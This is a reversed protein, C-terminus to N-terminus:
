TIFQQTQGFNTGQIYFVPNPLLFFMDEEAV